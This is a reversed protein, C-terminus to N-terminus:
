KRQLESSIFSTCTYDGKSAHLAVTHLDLSSQSDILIATLTECGTNSSAHGCTWPNVSM